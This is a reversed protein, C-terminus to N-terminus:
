NFILNSYTYEREGIITIQVSFDTRINGGLSNESDVYSKINYSGNTLVIVYSEDYLPFKATSPSKLNEKVADKAFLWASEKDANVKLYAQKLIEEKTLSNKTEVNNIIKFYIGAAVGNYIYMDVSLTYNDSTENYPLEMNVVKDIWKKDESWYSSITTALDDMPKLEEITVSENDINKFYYIDTWNLAQDLQPVITLIYEDNNYNLTYISKGPTKTGEWEQFKALIDNVSIKKTQETIKEETITIPEVVVPKKSCGLFLIILVVYVFRLTKRM